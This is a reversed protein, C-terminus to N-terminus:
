KARFFGQDDIAQGSVKFRQTLGTMWTTEGEQKSGVGGTAKNSASHILRRAPCASLRNGRFTAGLKGSARNAASAEGRVLASETAHRLAEITPGSVFSFSILMDCGACLIRM